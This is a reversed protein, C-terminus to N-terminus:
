GKCPSGIMQRGEIKSKLITIINHFAPVHEIAFESKCRWRGDFGFPDHEKMM